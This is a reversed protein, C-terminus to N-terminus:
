DGGMLYLSPQIVPLFYPTTFESVQLQGSELRDGRFGSSTNEDATPTYIGVQEPAQVQIRPCGCKPLIEFNEAFEEEDSNAYDEGTKFVNRVARNNHIYDYHHGLEHRLTDYFYYIDNLEESARFIKIKGYKSFISWQYVGYIRADSDKRHIFEHLSYISIPMGSYVSIKNLNITANSPIHALVEMVMSENVGDEIYLEFASSYVPVIIVMLSLIALRKFLESTIM